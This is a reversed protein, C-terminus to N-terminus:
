HRHPENTSSSARRWATTPILSWHAPERREGLREAAADARRLRLLGVRMVGCGVVAGPARSHELSGPMTALPDVGSQSARLCHRFMAQKGVVDDLYSVAAREKIWSVTL